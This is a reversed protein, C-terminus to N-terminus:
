RHLAAGSLMLALVGAAAAAFRWDKERAWVAALAAVRLPPTMLLVLLGARLWDPRSMALGLALLAASLWVGAALLLSIQRRSDM